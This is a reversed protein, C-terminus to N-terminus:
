PSLNPNLGRDKFFRFFGAEAGFPVIREMDPQDATVTGLSGFPGAVSLGAHVEYTAGPVADWFLLGLGANLQGVGLALDAARTPDTGMWQEHANPWWDGDPNDRPGFELNGFWALEWNDDLGDADVDVMEVGRVILEMRTVTGTAGSATDTIEAIWTGAAPEGFHRTTWFTWSSPASGTDFNARQLISRTGTPSHLLVQLDGRRSHSLDVRLGVHECAMGETVAFTATARNLELHATVAPDSGLLDRVTEGDTENIMVAPIPVFDTDGMIVRENLDRDNYVVVWAAGADAAREIKRRFTNRDDPFSGSPGRRILAVKGDLNITLDNTALGVDVLPLAVTTGEVLPGLSPTASASLLVTLEMSGTVVVRLGDDPILRTGSWVWRREVLPPRLVWDRALAVARAADPVGFGTNHSHRFGAFNTILDPDSEHLQRASLILIHQVDRITLNPNVALLLAVIGSIQPASFSTGRLETSRWYDANDSGGLWTSQGAAGMRDTSTLARDAGGGFAAVLLCAGATSYDTAHGISNVAGV